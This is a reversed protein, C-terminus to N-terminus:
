FHENFTVNLLKLLKIVNNNNIIVILMKREKMLKILYSIGTDIKTGLLNCDVYEMIISIQNDSPYLNEKTNRNVNKINMTYGEQVM